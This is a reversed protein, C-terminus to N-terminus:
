KTTAMLDIVQLRDGNKQFSGAVVTSVVSSVLIAIIIGAM